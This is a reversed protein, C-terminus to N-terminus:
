SKDPLCPRLVVHIVWRFTDMAWSIFTLGRYGGDVWMLYLRAVMTGLPTQTRKNKQRYVFTMAKTVMSAMAVSQSDLIAESPSEPRGADTKVWGRVRHYLITWTGDNRWNRSFVHISYVM